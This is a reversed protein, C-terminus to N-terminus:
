TGARDAPRSLLRRQDKKADTIPRVAASVSGGAAELTSHTKYRLASSRPRTVKTSTLTPRLSTLPQVLEARRQTLRSRSVADSCARYCASATGAGTVTTSVVAGNSTSAGGSSSGTIQHFYLPNPLCNTSSGSPCTDTVFSPSVSNSQSFAGCTPQDVSSYLCEGFLSFYIQHYGGSSHGATGQSSWPITTSWSYDACTTQALAPVAMICFAMLLSLLRTRM